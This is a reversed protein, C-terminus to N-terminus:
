RNVFDRVAIVINEKMDEDYGAFEDVKIGKSTTIFFPYGRVEFLSKLYEVEDSNESIEVNVRVIQLKGSYDDCMTELFPIANASPPNHDLFAILLADQAAILKDINNVKRYVVGEGTGDGIDVTEFVLATVPALNVVEGIASEKRCGSSFSAALILILFICISNKLRNM